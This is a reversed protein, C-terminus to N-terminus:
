EGQFASPPTDLIERLRLERRHQDPYVPELWESPSFELPRKSIPEGPLEQWPVIYLVRPLEQNGQIFDEDLFITDIEAASATVAATILLVTALLKM